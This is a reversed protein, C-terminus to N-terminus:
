PKAQPATRAPPNASPLGRAQAKLDVTHAIHRADEFRLTIPVFDGNGFAHQIDMLALYGGGPALRFEAGAPVDLAPVAHEVPLGDKLEFTRIEVKRAWASSAGVLKLPTDSKLDVYAPTAAQGEAASRVWPNNVQVEVASVTGAACLLALACLRLSPSM